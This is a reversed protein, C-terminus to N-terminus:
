AAACPAAAQAQQTSGDTYTSTATMQWLGDAPCAPPTSFYARRGGVHVPIHIRLDLLSLSPPLAFHVTVSAGVVTDRYVALISRGVRVVVIIQRRANILVINAALQQQGSTLLSEGKGLRTKRPCASPGLKAIRKNTARCRPLAATDIKTGPPFDLRLLRLSVPKGAPEGPDAWTMHLEVRSAVGAAGPPFSAEVTAARQDSAYASVSLGALLVAALM